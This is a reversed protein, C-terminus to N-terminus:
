FTELGKKFIKRAMRSANGCAHVLSLEQMKLVHEEPLWFHVLKKPSGQDETYSTFRIGLFLGRNSITGNSRGLCEAIERITKQSAMECIFADEEPTFLKSQKRIGLRSTRVKVADETRNLQEAVEAHSLHLNNRIFDEESQTWRVWTKTAM